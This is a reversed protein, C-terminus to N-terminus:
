IRDIGNLVKLPLDLCATEIIGCSISNYLSSSFGACFMHMTMNVAWIIVGIQYWSFKVSKLKCVCTGTLYIAILEGLSM